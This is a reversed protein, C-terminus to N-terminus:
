KVMLIRNLEPLVGNSIQINYNGVPWGKVEVEVNTSTARLEKILKGDIQTIRIIANSYGEPIQITLQDHAPNPYLLLGTEMQEDVGIFVAEIVGEASCGEVNVAEFTYTGSETISLTNSHAGDILVGNFYWTYTADPVTSGSLNNGLQSIVLLQPMEFVDISTQVDNLSCNGQDVHLTYTGEESVELSQSSGVVDGNFLWTNGNAYNSTLTSVEGSCIVADDVIISSPSMPEINFTTSDIRVGCLNNSIMLKLDHEGPESIALYDENGVVDGDLIWAYQDTWLVDAEANLVPTDCPGTLNSNIAAEYDACDFITHTYTNTIVAPNTDFYIGATNSILTGMPLNQKMRIKFSVLGHSGPEDSTSDPLMIDSFNFAIERYEPDVVVMVSHSNAVLRFTEIDLNQDLTDRIIVDYAAANGTNQFRVVYEIETGDEVFHADTYGLPYGIKDNPDYACTLELERFREGSAVLEGNYFGFIMAHNHIMSGMFEFNPTKLLVDYMFMQGPQLNQYSMYIRNGVISDIPTITDIGVYISDFDIYLYGSIPYTSENRFCINHNVWTDCRPADPYFDICMGWVPQTATLGFRRVANNPGFIDFYQTQPTSTSYYPFISSNDHSIQYQGIPLEISFHGSDDTIVILDGPIIMLTQFALGIEGIGQQGNQNVDNFVVGTLLYKCSGNNCTATERYNAASPDTCGELDEETCVCFTRILDSYVNVNAGFAPYATANILEHFIEENTSDRVTIRFESSDARLTQFSILVNFCEKNVCEISASYTPSGSLSYLSYTDLFDLNNQFKIETINLSPTYNLCEVEVTLDIGESCSGDDCSALPDYNCAQPNTCGAYQCQGNDCTASASYNCADPDTCGCTDYCCSGDDRFANADYNCALNNTCGMGYTNQMWFINGGEEYAVFDNYGDSDMDEILVNHNSLNFQGFCSSRTYTDGNNLYSIISYGNSNSNDPYGTFVYFFRDEDGDNDIDFPPLTETAGDTYDYDDFMDGQTFTGDANQIYYYPRVTGTRTAVFDMDSDGDANLVLHVSTTYPLLIVPTDFNGDGDNYRVYTGDATSSSILDLDNDGDFDQFVQVGTQAGDIIRLEFNGNDLNILTIASGVTSSIGVLILDKLGDNNLDKFDLNYPIQTISFNASYTNVLTFADTVGNYSYLKLGNSGNLPLVIVEETGDGWLDETYVKIYSELPSQNIGVPLDFEGGTQNEMLCHSELSFFDNSRISLDVNGDQSRDLALMNEVSLYFSLNNDTGNNTATVGSKWFSNIFENQQDVLNLVVVDGFGDGDLDGNSNACVQGALGISSTAAVFDGAGDNQYWSTQATSEVYLYLNYLSAGTTKVIDLKNDADVNLFQVMESNDEDAYIQTFHVSNFLQNAGQALWVAETKLQQFNFRTGYIDRDGDGDMDAVGLIKLNTFSLNGMSIATGFTIGDENPYWSLAYGTQKIIDKDGDGDVDFPNDFFQLNTSTFNTFFGASNNKIWFPSTGPPDSKRDVMLDIDGDNDVDGRMIYDYIDGNPSNTLQLTYPTIGQAGPSLDMWRIRASDAYSLVDAYGDGNIDFFDVYNENYNSFGTPGGRLVLPQAFEGGGLNVCVTFGGNVFMVDNDGDSDWDVSYADNMGVSSAGYIENEKSFQAHLGINWLSLFALSYFFKMM